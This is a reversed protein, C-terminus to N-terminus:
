LPRLSAYREPLTIERTAVINRMTGELQDLAYLKDDSDPNLLSRQQTRAHPLTLGPITLWQETRQLLAEKLRRARGLPRASYM